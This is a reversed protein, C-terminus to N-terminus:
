PSPFWRPLRSSRCPRVGGRRTPVQVAFFRASRRPAAPDGAPRGHNEARPPRGRARCGGAGSRAVSVLANVILYPLELALLLGLLSLAILIARLQPLTLGASWISSAPVALLLASLGAAGLHLVCLTALRVMRNERRTGGDDKLRLSAWALAAMACVDLVCLAPMIVVVAVGLMTWDIFRSMAAAMLGVVASCLVCLCFYVGGALWGGLKTKM